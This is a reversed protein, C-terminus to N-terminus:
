RRRLAAALAEPTVIQADRYHKLALLAKDKTVLHSARGAYAARSAVRPRGLVSLVEFRIFESTVLRLEGALAARVIRGSPGQPNRLAKVYANTDLVVRM